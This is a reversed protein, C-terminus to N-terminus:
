CSSLSDKKMKLQYDRVLDYCLQRVMRVQGLCDHEYLKEYYYELLEMKYKPDLDTAVVM